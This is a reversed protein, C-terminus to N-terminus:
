FNIIDEPDVPQNQRWLEFHLHPGTSSEGTNGIIAIPEGQEVYQGAIVLLKSNHKYSSLYSSAHMIWVTYGTERTYGSSLVYGSAVAKIESRARAALDLGYHYRESDYRSTIEGSVPKEFSMLPLLNMRSSSFSTKSVAVEKASEKSEAEEAKEVKAVNVGKTILNQIALLKKERAESLYEMSDVRLALNKYDEGVFSKPLPGLLRILRTQTALLVSVISVICLSCLCILILRFWTFDFVYKQAMRQEDMVVVKYSHFLKNRLDKFSSKINM